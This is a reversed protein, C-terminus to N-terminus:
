TRQTRHCLPIWSLQPFTNPARQLITWSCSHKIWSFQTHFLGVHAQLVGLYDTTLLSQISSRLGNSTLNITTNNEWTPCLPHHWSATSRGTSQWASRHTKCAPTCSHFLPAPSPVVPDTRLKQCVAPEMARNLSCVILLKMYIGSRLRPSFSANDTFSLTIGVPPQPPAKYLSHSVVFKYIFRISVDVDFECYCKPSIEKVKRM